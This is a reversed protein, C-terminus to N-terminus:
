KVYRKRAAPKKRSIKRYERDQKATLVREGKKLRAKGTRRVKGGHDYSSPSASESDSRSAPPKKGGSKMGGSKGGIKSIMGMIGGFGGM